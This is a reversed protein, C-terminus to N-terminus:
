GSVEEIEWLYVYIHGQVVRKVSGNDGHKTFLRIKAEDAIFSFWSRKLRSGLYGATNM